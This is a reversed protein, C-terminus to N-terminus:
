RAPLAVELVECAAMATVRYDAGAPIACADDVDLIHTGLQESNLQLRGELVYLFLLDGNHQQM